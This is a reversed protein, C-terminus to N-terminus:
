VLMLFVALSLFLTLFLSLALALHTITAYDVAATSVSSCPSIAGSSLPSLFPSSSKGQELSHPPLCPATKCKEGGDMKVSM